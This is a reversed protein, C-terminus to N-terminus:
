CVVEEFITNQNTMLMFNFLNIEFENKVILEWLKYNVFMYYMIKDGIPLKNWYNIKM